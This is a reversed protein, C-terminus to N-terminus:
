QETDLSEIMTTLQELQEAHGALKTNFKTGITESIQTQQKSLTDFKSAKDKMSLEVMELRKM